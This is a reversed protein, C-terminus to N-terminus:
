LYRFHEQRYASVDFNKRFEKMNDEFVKTYIAQLEEVSKGILEELHNKVYEKIKSNSNNYGVKLIISEDSSYKGIDGRHWLDWKEYFHNLVPNVIKWHLLEAIRKNKEREDKEIYKFYIYESIICRVVRAKDASYFTARMGLNESYHIYKDGRLFEGFLVPETTDTSTNQLYLDIYLNNNYTSISEVRSNWNNGEMRKTAIGFHCHEGDKTGCERLIRIFIDKSVALVERDSMKSITGLKEEPTLSTDLLNNITVM